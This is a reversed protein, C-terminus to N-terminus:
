SLKLKCSLLLTCTHVLEGIRVSVSLVCDSLRTGIRQHYTNEVTHPATQPWCDKYVCSVCFLRQGGRYETHKFYMSLQLRNTRHAAYEVLDDSLLWM